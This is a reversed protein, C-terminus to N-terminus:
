ADTPGTGVPQPPPTVPAQAASNSANMQMQKLNNAEASMAAIAEKMQQHKQAQTALRIASDEDFQGLLEDNDFIAQYYAIFGDHDSNPLVPVDIGRLVRNAEEAPTPIYMYGQPAQVYKGVAKVGKAMLLDKVSEYLGPAGVVGAQILLPNQLIQFVELAKQEQIAQNSTESNPALEFDFMGAIDERDRVWRWYDLGDEGTVRFAWGVPLRQQLMGLHYRLFKKWGRHLRRLFVDLNASSEGILARAGTATRTAGQAGTMAGLVMDNVGTLRELYTQLGAEEQMGFSTRNGLNPFFVDTQPNDLPILIGPQLEIKEAELSSAPRYFGFPMTALTGFDVRMNHIADMERALPLMIEVLGVPNESNARRYYDIVAYPREGQRNLRHLYNARVMEGTEPHVWVVVDTNIGSGDLDIRIYSEIIQYTDLDAESNLNTKGANFARDQKLGTTDLAEATNPGGKIIKEVAEADFVGCDVQTWLDSATLPYADLVADALDPDGNGGIILVDEIQRLEAVPGEFKIKTVPREVAVPMPTQVEEYTGTEPNLIQETKMVVAQEVDVFKVYSKEWRQKVIGRGATLWNWIWDDAVAEVGQHHNSYEKLSYGMVEQVNRVREAFAETRAKAVFPPDISFLAQLFRAHLSKVATFSIPLHLNSSGDWPGYAENDPSHIDWDALLESQRDLYEQRDSNGQRWMSVIKQGVNKERLQELLGSPNQDRASAEMGELPMRKGIVDADNQLIAM